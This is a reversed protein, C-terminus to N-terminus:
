GCKNEYNNKNAQFSVLSIGSLQFSPIFDKERIVYYKESKEKQILSYAHRYICMISSM